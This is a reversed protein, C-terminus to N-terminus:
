GLGAEAALTAAAASAAPMPDVARARELVLASLGRARQLTAPDASGLRAMSRVAADLDAALALLDHQRGLVDQLARLAAIPGAFGEPGAPAGAELAYRLRKTQVRFRHWADLPAGAAPQAARWASVDARLRPLVWTALGATDGNATLLPGAVAFLDERLARLRRRDLGCELVLCLRELRLDLFRGCAAAAPALEAPLTPALEGLLERSVAGQRPGGLLRTLRRVPDRLRGAHRARLVDRYLRLSARLRRTAVRLDHVLDSDCRRLDPERAVLRLAGRVLAQGCAVRAAATGDGPTTPAAATV